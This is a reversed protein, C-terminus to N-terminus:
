GRETEWEAGGPMNGKAGALTRFGYPKRVFQEDLFRAALNAAIVAFGVFDVGFLRFAGCLIGVLIGYAIQGARTVPSTVPDTAMFLAAMVVGGSALHLGLYPVDFGRGGFLGMFMAFSTLASAPIEITIGGTVFLYLGGLCLAAISSGIVGGGYGLYAGAASVTEGARFAALPTASSIGDVAYDTMAGRFCLLLLCRGALAPNVFNRGLGGFLCKALLIAFFSGACPVYLPVRPPLCLALLLGTVAASGDEVTLPKKAINDFITETLLASLVSAMVVFFAWYGYQYIGFLSAPLLALIVDRMVRRVTLSDRAHPSPSIRFLRNIKQGKGRRSTKRSM